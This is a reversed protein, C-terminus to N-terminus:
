RGTASTKASIVTCLHVTVPLVPTLPEKTALKKYNNKEEDDLLQLKKNLPHHHKLKLTLSKISMKVLHQVLIVIGFQLNVMNQINMSVMCHLRHRIQALIVEAHHTQKHLLRLRLCVKAVRARLLPHNQILMTSQVSLYDVALDQQFRIIFCLKLDLVLHPHLVLDSAQITLL